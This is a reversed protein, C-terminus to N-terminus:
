RAESGDFQETWTGIEASPDYGTFLKNTEGQLFCSYCTEDREEASHDLTAYMELLLRELQKIRARLERFEKDCVHELM